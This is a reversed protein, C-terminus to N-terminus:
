IIFHYRMCSEEKKVEFYNELVGLYQKIEFNLLLEEKLERKVAEGTTEGLEVYGGPLYLCNDQRTNVTLLKNNNIIIGAVRFKFNFDKIKMIISERM